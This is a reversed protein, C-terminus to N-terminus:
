AYAAPPGSAGDIDFQAASRTNGGNAVALAILEDRSQHVRRSLGRLLEGREAFTLARLAAGGVTRAHELASKWAVGGARLEAIPEETAPNLLTIADAGDVFRGLAYSSLTKM